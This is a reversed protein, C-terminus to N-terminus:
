FLNRQPPAAEPSAIVSQIYSWSTVLTNYALAEQAWAKRECIAYLRYALGRADESPGAGLLNVLRAAEAEGGQDLARILYQTCKWTNLRNDSTPDWNDPYEDRPLLRVKGGPALLVGSEAIGEVSSNKARALVDAEGFAGWEMNHQEFWAICFRTDPDLNGEQEAFYTDLETNIIQLATRVRMPNGDAELVNRYRSFVAMGPGIAAQAFDVPAINGQQLQRLADPLERRLVSIFDRRTTRRADDRRPRCVLVISSALANIAIKMGTPRETRMPLTGTIQFGAKLLGELMTEWGTSAVGGDKKDTETQKFAYYVTMPYNPHVRSRMLHFAKGLGELFHEEAKAKDGGFRHPAAVLEETKPVLMLSFLKPYVERLSRRLWIYFFDSLDAYGINDYYPPDTTILPMDETFPLAQSADIQVANGEPGTPLATLVDSVWEVAGTWNGSMKELPNAEIFNWLMSIAQRSFIQAISGGRENWFCLSNNYSALRSLACSLYTTIAESYANANKGGTHLSVGDDLFGAVIADQKIKERVMGVLDCFTTLAVLQRQTFLDSWTFFGYGRGSVLNTTDRNMGIEPKWKPIASEAAKIHEESPPLYIRGQDGEAVVAMLQANVRGAMSERKIHHESTDQQCVLCRFRAGRGIKTPEPPVGNGTKVEFKVRKNRKDIIPEVWAGENQKRSLWFSTVLPMRAGCVPNPCKVTRAWFFALVPSKKNGYEKPLLAKPYFDGIRKEAEDRMWKGYYRVDQVLGAAGKWTQSRVLADQANPNVPAQGAFRPPIEIMAKTILVAVPNLDSGYAELGLRQAELPISGGGCFPDLVPPPNGDTSKLIEAQAKELIREDNTNEWKVLEEILGFLRERERKQDSESPFEEPRSSPDDVLSAFLVARCAALPKRSWWQHLTSPHGRRPVSKEDAASRNIKDLPLAVEILKKRYTM